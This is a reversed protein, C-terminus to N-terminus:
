GAIIGVKKVEFVGHSVIRNGQSKKKPVFFIPRLNVPFRKLSQIFILRFIKNQLFPIKKFLPSNLGDYPDYGSWDNAQCYDMLKLIVAKLNDPSIKTQLM